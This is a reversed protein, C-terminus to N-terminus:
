YRKNRLKNKINRKPKLKVYNKMTQLKTPIIKDNGNIYPDLIPTAVLLVLQVM